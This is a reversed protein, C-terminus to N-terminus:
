LSAALNKARDADRHNIPDIGKKLLKRYERATERAESLSIDNVPGLGMDRAKQGELVYRFIWSLRRNGAAGTSVQLYLNGGDCHMGPKLNKFTAPLRNIGRAM